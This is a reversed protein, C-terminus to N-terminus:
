QLTELVIILPPLSRETNEPHNIAKAQATAARVGLKVVAAPSTLSVSNQLHHDHVELGQGGQGSAAAASAHLM